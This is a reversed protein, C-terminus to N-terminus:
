IIKKIYIFFLKKLKKVQILPWINEPNRILCFQSDYNLDYVVTLKFYAFICQTQADLWTLGNNTLRKLELRFIEQQFPDLEKEIILPKFSESNIESYCQGFM